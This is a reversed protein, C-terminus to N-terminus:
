SENPRQADLRRADIGRRRHQIAAVLEDFARQGMWANTLWHMRGDVDISVHAGDANESLRDVRVSMLDVTVHDSSFGHPPFTLQTETLVVRHGLVFAAVGRAALALLVFGSSLLVLVFWAGDVGLAASGGALLMMLVFAAFVQPGPRVRYTRTGKPPPSHQDAPAREVLRHLLLFSLWIAAAVGAVVAVALYRASAVLLGVLAAAVLVARLLGPGRTAGVRAPPLRESPGISSERDVPQM